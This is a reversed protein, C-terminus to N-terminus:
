KDRARIEKAPNGAVVKESGVDRIVISGAGIIAKEGVHLNPIIVAGAGVIVNAALSVNGALTSSIYLSAFDGVKCDHSVSVRRDILVHSGIVVDCSVSAFAGIISGEGIQVGNKAINALPHILSAPLLGAAEAIAVAGQRALGEGICAVFKTDRPLRQLYEDSGLIAARTSTKEEGSNSRSVFGVLNYTEKGTELISQANIADIIEVAERALGGAGLIVM